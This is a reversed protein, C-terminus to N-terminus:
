KRPAPAAPVAPKGLRYLHFTSALYGHDEGAQTVAATAPLWRDAIARYRPYGYMEQPSSRLIAPVCVEAAAGIAYWGPPLPTQEPSLGVGPGLYRDLQPGGIAPDLVHFPALGRRDAAQRLAILNQHYYCNDTSLAFRMPDRRGLWWTNTESIWAPALVLSEVLLAAFLAMAIRPRRAAWLAAPLYLIPLIPLLHRLGANYNSTMAVLLYVAATLALLAVLKRRRAAAVAAAAAVASAEGRDPALGSPLPEPPAEGEGEGVSGAGIAAAGRARRRRRALLASAATAAAAASALLLALPTRALLLVPFYWWHGRSHMTGFNCAPYTGISNQAMTALLGTWWQAARPDRRELALLRGEYPQLRDLVIMSAHNTCYLQITERGYASRYHRNAIGYAAEVLGWAVLVAAAGHLLRRRYPKWGGGCVPALVLASAVAPLALLGTFKSAIAVGLGLGLLIASGTGPRRLYRAAALLVMGFGLAAATDTYLLSLFPFVCFSLGLLLALSIGAARGGLERGLFFAVLLFPLGFAAAALTRGGLRVLAETGAADCIPKTSTHQALPAVPRPTSLLPLAAVMKMLPPHELNLDNQGYRDAQDGALAHFIEDSTLSQRAVALGQLLLVALTGAVGLVRWSRMAAGSEDSGGRSAAPPRTRRGEETRETETLPVPEAPM